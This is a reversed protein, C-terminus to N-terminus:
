IDIIQGLEPAYAEIGIADAWEQMNKASKEEGHIFFVKKPNTKRILEKLESIGSHASFDFQEVTCKVKKRWGDAFIEGKELLMRGNTEEAQYGTLLVSNKPNGSLNKLYTIVPGGTLMGSTTVIISQQKLADIRESDRKVRKVKKFIDALAKPDKITDPNELTIETAANAMGDFYIPVNWNEKALILLVEESRGLAFVPIIATGGRKITDKVAQIFRQDEQPRKAHERDGYTSECIM